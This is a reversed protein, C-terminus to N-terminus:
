QLQDAIRAFHNAPGATGAALGADVVSGSRRILEVWAQARDRAAGIASEQARNFLRRSDELEFAGISGARRRAENGRLTLRVASIATRSAEVRRVASDQVVLGDEIDQVAQRLTIELTAVAERYLAEARVVEARGAGGDILPGSVGAGISGTIFTASTGLASIWQGTLLASLSLRPLREARAVGIESWRAAVEREAAVVSPHALLVTAPLSPVVAPAIPMLAALDRSAYAPPSSAIEDAALPAGVISRVEAAPRGSLAVLADVTRRSVQEQSIRDIRVTALNSEATAADAPALSGLRVRARFILLENERSAIDADRVLLLLDSARLMLIGDAVQAAISLRADAADADRAQLRSRAARSTEKIRGWLDIEWSPSPGIAASNQNITGAAGPQTGASGVRARQASATVGVQPKGQARGITVAARAQDVHAAAEAVTPNDTLAATVLTDIAPDHLGTWWADGDVVNYANVPQTIGEGLNTWAPLLGTTPRDYPRQTACASTLLVIAFVSLHRAVV